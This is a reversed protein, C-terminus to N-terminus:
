VYTHISNPTGTNHITCANTQVMDHNKTTVIGIAFTFTNKKKIKRNFKNTINKKVKLIAKKKHQIIVTTTAFM